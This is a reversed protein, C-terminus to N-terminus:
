GWGSPPTLASLPPEPYGVARYLTGSPKALLWHGGVRQLYIVDDEVSVYKRDSFHHTVTATVRARTDDLEEPKVEVLTTKRWAPAGGRPRTGISARLSSRCGGRRRPLQGPDLAGPVILACVRVADHRDLARIYDSVAAVAASREEGSLEGTSGPGEAPAEPSAETAAPGLGGAETHDRPEVAGSPLRGTIEDAPETSTTASPTEAATEGDDSDGGCGALALTLLITLTAALRM